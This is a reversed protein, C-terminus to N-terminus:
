LQVWLRILGLHWEMKQVLCTRERMLLCRIDLHNEKRLMLLQQAQMGAFHHNDTEMM